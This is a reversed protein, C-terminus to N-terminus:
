GRRRVLPLSLVCVAAMTTWAAADGATEALLGGGASGLFAGPGWAMSQIAFAFTQEM